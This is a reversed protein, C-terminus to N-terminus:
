PSDGVLAMTEGKWAQWLAITEPGDEVAGSLTYTGVEELYHVFSDLEAEDVVAVKGILQSHIKSRISISLSQEDELGAERHLKWDGVYNKLRGDSLIHESREIAETIKQFAPGHGKWGTTQSRNRLDCQECGYLWLFAHTMEHALIPLIDPGKRYPWRVVYIEDKNQGALLARRSPKWHTWRLKFDESKLLGGFFISSLADFPCQLDMDFTEDDISLDCRSLLDFGRNHLRTVMEFKEPQTGSLSPDLGLLSSIYEAIELTLYSKRHLCQSFPTQNQDCTFLDQSLDLHRHSKPIASDYLIRGLFTGVMVICVSLM